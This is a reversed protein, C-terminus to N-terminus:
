RFGMMLTFFAQFLEGALIKVLRLWFKKWLQMQNLDTDINLITVRETRGRPSNQSSQLGSSSISSNTYDCRMEAVRDWIGKWKM